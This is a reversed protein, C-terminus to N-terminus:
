FRTLNKKLLECKIGKLTFCGDILRELVNEVTKNLDLINVKTVEKYRTIWQRRFSKPCTQSDTFGRKLDTTKLLNLAFPVLFAISALCRM